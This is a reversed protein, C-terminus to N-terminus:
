PRGGTAVDERERMHHHCQACTLNLRVLDLTAADADQEGAHRVLDAAQEQLSKSLRKYRPTPEAVHWSTARSIMRLTEAADEVQGYKHLTIGELVRNMQVLKDRM